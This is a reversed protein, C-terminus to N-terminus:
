CIFTAPLCGDEPSTVLVPCDNFRITLEYFCNVNIRTQPRYGGKATQVTGKELSTVFSTLKLDGLALKKKLM